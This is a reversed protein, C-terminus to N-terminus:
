IIPETPVPANVTKLFDDPLNVQANGFDSMTCSMGFSTGQTVILANLSTMYGASDIVFDVTCKAKELVGKNNEYNKCFKDYDSSRYFISAGNEKVMKFLYDLSVNYRYHMGGDVAETTITALESNTTLRQKVINIFEATEDISFDSTLGTFRMFAGCDFGGYRFDSDFGFFNLMMETCDAVMWQDRYFSGKVAHEKDSYVAGTYTYTNYDAEYLAQVTHQQRDVDITGDYSMVSQEDKTLQIHYAFPYSFDKYLASSFQRVPNNNRLFMLVFFVILGVVVVGVAAFLLSMHSRLWERRDAAIAENIVDKERRIERPESVDVSEQLEKENDEM